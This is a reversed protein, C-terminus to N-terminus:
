SWTSCKNIYESPIRYTESSKVGRWQGCTSSREVTEWNNAEVMSNHSPPEWIPPQQSVSFSDRLLQSIYCVHLRGIPARCPSVAALWWLEVWKKTQDVPGKRMKKTSRVRELKKPRGSLFNNRVMTGMRWKWKVCCLKLCSLPTNYQNCFHLVKSGMKVGIIESKLMLRNQFPKMSLITTMEDYWCLGSLAGAWRSRRGLAPRQPDAWVSAAPPWGLCQGSSGPLHHYITGEGRRQGPWAPGRRRWQLKLRLNVFIEWDRLLDRGCNAVSDKLDERKRWIRLGPHMLKLFRLAWWCSSTRLIGFCGWSAFNPHNQALNHCKWFLM